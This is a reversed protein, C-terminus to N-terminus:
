KNKRKYKAAAIRIESFDIHLPLRGKLEKLDQYGKIIESEILDLNEESILGSIDLDPYYELITEAQMSIVAETLKRLSAIDKLKYGKKILQYTDSINSPLPPDEAASLALEHRKLFEGTIHIIEDGFKNIMRQTVGKVSLLQSSSVPKKEAIRRLVEDSCILNGTQQFKRAAENRAERLLHFLELDTEYDNKVSDKKLIEVEKGNIVGLGKGTITLKSGPKSNNKLDGTSILREIIGRIESQNYNSCAGYTATESSGPEEKGLLHYILKKVPIGDPHAAAAKLVIESLYDAVSSTFESGECCNDCKGCSYDNAEEGFYELIKRMRCDDSFVLGTMANLKSVARSYGSSVLDYNLQIYKSDSRTGTLKISNGSGPKTYEAIGITHLFTLEEEFFSESVGYASALENMSIRTRSNMVTGGYTQLIIMIVDRTLDNAKKVYDRLMDPPILFQLYYTRQFESVRKIYGANELVNIAANIMSPSIERRCWSSIYEYKIAIEKDCSSGIAVKGYDCLANYVNIILDQGPYSNSIFYKHIQQDSDEYLMFANAPDGDRGARGIEQYYNEVSGPMNYHIVLRIDKKDIGMGFANTACIIDIKGQIFKEQILKREESALGAHYCASNMKYLNLFQSIEEAKKRS